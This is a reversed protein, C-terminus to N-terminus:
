EVQEVVSPGTVRPPPLPPPAKPQKPEPKTPAGRGIMDMIGNLLMQEEEASPLEDDAYAPVIGYGLINEM